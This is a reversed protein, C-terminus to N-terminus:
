PTSVSVVKGQRVTVLYPVSSIRMALSQTEERSLHIMIVLEEQLGILDPGADLDIAWIAEAVVGKSQLDSGWKSMQTLCSPCSSRIIAIECNAPVKRGVEPIVDRLSRAIWSKPDVPARTAWKVMPDM